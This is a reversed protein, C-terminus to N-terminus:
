RAVPEVSLVTRSHATLSALNTLTNGPWLPATWARDKLGSPFNMAEAPLQMNHESTNKKKKYYTVNRM